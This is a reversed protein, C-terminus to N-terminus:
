IIMLGRLYIIVPTLQVKGRLEYREIACRLIESMNKGTHQGEIEQFLLQKSKLSWLNPHDAPADIYHVTLSLYPDGPAFTWADFTFSVKSPLNKMNHRVRGEATQAHQLIETRLTQHHPIDKDSLAAHCFKLLHWFPGRDIL